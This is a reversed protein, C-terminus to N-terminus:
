TIMSIVEMSEESPAPLLTPAPSAPASLGQDSPAPTVQSISPSLSTLPSLPSLLPSSLPPPYQEVPLSVATDSPIEQAPMDVPPPISIVETPPETTQTVHTPTNDLPQTPMAQLGSVPSAPIQSGLGSPSIPLDTVDGLPMSNTSPPLNPAEGSPTATPTAQLRQLAMNGELPPHGEVIPTPCPTPPTPSITALGTLDPLAAAMPSGSTVGVQLSNSSPLNVMEQSSKNITPLAATRRRHRAGPPYSFGMFRPDVDSPSSSPRDMSVPEENPLQVMNVDNYGSMTYAKSDTPYVSWEVLTSFFHRM